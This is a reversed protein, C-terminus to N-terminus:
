LPDPTKWGTSQQPPNPNPGMVAIAFLALPGLLTGLFGWLLSSHGKKSALTACGVISGVWVLIMLM